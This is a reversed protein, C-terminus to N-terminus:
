VSPPNTKKLVMLGRRKAERRLGFLRATLVDKIEENQANENDVAQEAYESEGTYIAYPPMERLQREVMSISNILHSLEMDRVNMRTGDKTVWIM